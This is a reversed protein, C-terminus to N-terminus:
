RARGDLAAITSRIDRELHEDGLARARDLAQDLALRAPAPQGLLDLLRGELWRGAAESERDNVALADETSARLAALAAEAAPVDGPEADLARQGDLYHLYPANMVLGRRWGMDRALDMSRRFNAHARAPRGLRLHTDGINHLNIVVGKQYGIGQRM